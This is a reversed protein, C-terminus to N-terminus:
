VRVRELNSGPVKGMCNWLIVVACTLDLLLLWNLQLFMTMNAVSSAYPMTYVIQFRFSCFPPKPFYLASHIVNRGGFCMKFNCLIWTLVCWANLSHFIRVTHLYQVENKWTIVNTHWVVLRCLFIVPYETIVLSVRVVKNKLIVVM